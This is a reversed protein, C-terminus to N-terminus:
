DNNFKNFEEEGFNELSSIMLDAIQLRKDDKGKRNIVVCKIKAAKAAIVGAPSDEFIICNERPVGLKKAATIFVGPHPKGYEENQASYIVDMDKKVGIKDVVTNIIEESSSTAVALKLGKAKLFEITKKVGPLIEADKKIREIVEKVLKKQVEEKSPNEWPYKQYWYNVIEDVRFGVTQKKLEPTIPAGVENFVKVEAEEWCKTNDILTGSMDFIAAKIM